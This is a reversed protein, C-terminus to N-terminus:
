TAANYRTYSSLLLDVADDYGIDTAYELPLVDDANKLEINAGATLLVKLCETNGIRLAIFLPTEGSSFTLADVDAGYRILMKTIMTMSEDREACAIHLATWGDEDHSNASMGKALLREVENVRGEEIAILLDM